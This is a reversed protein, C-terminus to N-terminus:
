YGITLTPTHRLSTGSLTIMSLTKSTYQAAPYDEWRHVSIEEPFARYFNSYTLPLSYTTLNPTIIWQFLILNSIASQFGVYQYNQFVAM